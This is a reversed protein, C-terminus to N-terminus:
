TQNARQGYICLSLTISWPNITLDRQQEVDLILHLADVELHTCVCVWVSLPVLVCRPFM